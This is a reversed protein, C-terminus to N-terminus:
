SPIIFDTLMRLTAGFTSRFGDLNILVLIVLFGYRAFGAYTEESMRVAHKLFRSGDLPPVPILNFLFLLCNILIFAELLGGWYSTEPLAGLVVGGICALVFNSLPGAGTILLDDRSMGPKRPIGATIIVISSGQTDGYDATGKIHADSGQVPGSELIDLAKGKAIGEAIDLLVVDAYGKQFILHATTAGVNGAGIVSIKNRM